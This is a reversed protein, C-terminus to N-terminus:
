GVVQGSGIVLGTADDIVIWSPADHAPDQGLALRYWLREASPAHEDVLAAAAPDVSALTRRDILTELLVPGTQGVAEEALRDRPRWALRPGLDLLRPLISTTQAQGIGDAWVVRDVLLEAPCGGAPACPSADAVIRGVFVAATVAERDKLQYPLPVGPRLVVRMPALHEAYAPATFLEGSRECFTDPDAAVGFEEALAPDEAARPTPCDSDPSVAFWGAVAVPGNEFSLYKATYAASWVPLGLVSTPYRPLPVSTPRPAAPTAAPSAVAVLPATSAPPVKSSSGAIGALVVSALAVAALAVAVLNGRRRRPALVAQPEFSAHEDL